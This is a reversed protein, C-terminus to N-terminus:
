VQNLVRSFEDGWGYEIIQLMREYLLPMDCQPTEQKNECYLANKCQMVTIVTM